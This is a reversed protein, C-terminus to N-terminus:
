VDFQRNLHDLIDSERYYVRRGVKARKFTGKRTREFVTQRTIGFLECVQKISLLDLKPNKIVNSTKM